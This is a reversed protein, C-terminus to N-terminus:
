HRTWTGGGTAAAAAVAAGWWPPVNYQDGIDQANSYVHRGAVQLHSSRTPLSLLHPPSSFQHHLYPTSILAPTPAYLLSIFDMYGMSRCTVHICCTVSRLGLGNQALVKVGRYEMLHHIPISPIEPLSILM